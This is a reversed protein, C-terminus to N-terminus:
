TSRRRDLFVRQKRLERSDGLEQIERLTAIRVNPAVKLEGRLKERITEPAADTQGRWAVIVELEDSLANPATAIMIYDIVQEIGQLVRQVAAPLGDNGQDEDGPRKSRPDARHAADM